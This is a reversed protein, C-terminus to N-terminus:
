TKREKEKSCVYICISKSGYLLRLRVLRTITITTFIRLDNVPRFTNATHCNRPEINKTREAKEKGEEKGGREGPIM